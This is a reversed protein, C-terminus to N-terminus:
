VNTCPEYARVFISADCQSMTNYYHREFPAEDPRAPKSHKWAPFAESREVASATKPTIHKLDRDAIADRRMNMLADRTRGQEFETAGRGGRRVLWTGPIQWPTKKM